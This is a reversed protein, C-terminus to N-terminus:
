GLRYAFIGWGKNGTCNEGFGIAWNKMMENFMKMLTYKLCRLSLIPLVLHNLPLMLSNPPSHLVM